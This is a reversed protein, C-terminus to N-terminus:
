RAPGCAVPGVRLCSAAGRRTPTVTQPTTATPFVTTSPSPSRRPAVEKRLEATEGSARAAQSSASGAHDWTESRDQRILSVANALQQGLERRMDEVQTGLGDVSKGISIKTDVLLTVIENSGRAV